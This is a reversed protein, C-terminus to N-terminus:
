LLDIGEFIAFANIGLQKLKFFIVLEKHGSLM